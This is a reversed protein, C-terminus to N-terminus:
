GAKHPREWFYERHGIEREAYDDIASRIADILILSGPVRAHTMVAAERAYIDSTISRPWRTLYGKGPPRVDAHWSPPKTLPKGGGRKRFNGQVAASASVM